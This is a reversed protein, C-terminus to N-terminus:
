HSPLIGLAFAYLFLLVFMAMGIGGGVWFKKSVDHPQKEYYDGLGEYVVQIDFAIAIGGMFLWSGNVAKVYTSLGVLMLISGVLSCLGLAIGLRPHKVASQGSVKIGIEGKAEVPTKGENESM